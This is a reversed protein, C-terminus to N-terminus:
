FKEINYGSNLNKNIIGDYTFLFKKANYMNKIWEKEEKNDIFSIQDKIYNKILSM